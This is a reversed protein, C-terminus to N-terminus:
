TQTRAPPNSPAAAGSVVPTDTLGMGALYLVIFEGPKAPSAETILSGDAGHQANVLGSALAAVGPAVASSQMSDPTSLAGNANVIIQYPQGPTLEFPIQANVQGPSVFFLPAQVGGIIVSTGALTNALPITTNVVTQSALSSGFIQVITGPALPAGVQPNFVHLTGNHN